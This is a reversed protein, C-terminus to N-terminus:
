RKLNQWAKEIRTELEHRSDLKPGKPALATYLGNYKHNKLHRKDLHYWRDMDVVRQRDEAIWEPKYM